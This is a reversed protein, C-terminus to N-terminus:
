THFGMDLQLCHLTLDARIRNTATLGVNQAVYQCGVLTWSQALAVVFYAVGLGLLTRLDSGAMARDIFTQVVRPLGLQLALDALMLAALAAMRTRQPALYARLFGGYPASSAQM